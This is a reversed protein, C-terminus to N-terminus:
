IISRDVIVDITRNPVMTINGVALAGSYEATYHSPPPPPIRNGLMALRAIRDTTTLPNPTDPHEFTMANLVTLDDEWRGSLETEDIFVAKVEDVTQNDVVDTHAFEPPSELIVEPSQNARSRVRKSVQQQWIRGVSNAPSNTYRLRDRNAHARDRVSERRQFGKSNVTGM